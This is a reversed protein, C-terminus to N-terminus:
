GGNIEEQAAIAEELASQLKEQAAGYAAWDGQQLAEQSSEMAEQADNLASNLREQASGAAPSSASASPEASPSQSAQASATDSPEATPEDGGDGDTDDGSPAVEEKQGSINADGAEAGSDGGFVQNLSEELTPAFGITNGDGFSTLVYQLQPYQTGSTAQVYVPQVYLLGGGVPLTLLNGMLVQTGGERLLNLQTSVTSNSLFTAEAQGPGPVTLDRPLELLQLKGYGERVKGAEAGANSDVALFGTMINRQTTGGPIYGSSLSFEAEEQGPMQLTLYYPPQQESTTNSATPDTPVKWFDSGSYFSAADTVHYETLLQRQVKFLDEPYRVHSMLDGSMESVPTLMGPFIRNWAKLIPDDADWQYLTVSGDYADVVAKVSNRIYNVEEASQAYTTSDGSRSDQTASSLTQRASYPYSNSTTYADIIWVLRKPTKDDGDMDVVAPYARSDLTLYPAVKSVRDHPDREYLIQSESTVRDSFFLETSRFKIAFLLKDWANSIKPGGDGSYTNYVLGQDSDDPYDLEWADTGEPAGVVSYDPSNQGFYVRPEYDGLKGESPIGQQFFQPVGRDTTTNGFAAAIGYGHTYVTHDNVWTRQDDNLGDLNLERVGIVTDRETDDINYRDVSLQDSFEYYQKNQQMQNFTPSVINPDLLRIQATTEADERLQGATAETTASYSTTEVDDLGYATLTANINRQIYESEMEVANPNVRFSQILSPYAWTIVLSAIVAVVIGTGVLKWLGRVAAFVFLLAILLAAIALITRGPLSANIDTYGAGSFKSNDALLMDYRSLWFYGAGLLAAVAGLIGFHIRARNSLKLRGNATGIGGYLYHGVVAALAGVVLLTIALSLLSHLLPLSFVYFSVDKGFQPDTQGFPTRYLWTVYTRWQGSLPAGLLVGLVLPVVLRVLWPHKEVQDRYGAVSRSDTGSEDTKGEKPRSLLLNLFVVVAVLVTGIVGLAVAWGWQTWFVRGAHLQNFWKVETWVNAMVALVVVLLALVILTPVFVGGARPAERKRTPRSMHPTSM